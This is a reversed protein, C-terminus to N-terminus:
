TVRPPRGSRGTRGEGTRGVAGDLGARGTGLVRALAAPRVRPPRCEM